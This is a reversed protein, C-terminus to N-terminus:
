VVYQGYSSSRVRPRNTKCSRDILRFREGPYTKCSRDMPRGQPRKQVTITGDILNVIIVRIRENRIYLLEVSKDPNNEYTIASVSKEIESSNIHTSSTSVNKKSLCSCLGLMM